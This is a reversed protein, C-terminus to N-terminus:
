VCLGDQFRYRWASQLLRREHIEQIIAQVARKITQEVIVCFHFGTQELYPLIASNFKRFHEM